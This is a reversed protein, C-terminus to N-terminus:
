RSEATLKRDSFAIPPAVEVWYPDHDSLRREVPFQQADLVSWTAPIAIHDISMQTTHRGPLSTTPVLLGLAGVSRLLTRQAERSFGLINGTLPQNWDGGWVLPEGSLADSLRATVEDMEQAQTGGNWPSYSEAFPGPLVSACFRHGRTEGLASAVDPDPLPTIPWRSAIGSWHKTTGMRRETLHLNFDRPRAEPLNETLLWVDCRLDTM